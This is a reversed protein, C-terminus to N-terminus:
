IPLKYSSSQEILNLDMAEIELREIIQKNLLRKTDRPDIENDECLLIIADMYSTDRHTLVFNEVMRSFHRKNIDKEEM